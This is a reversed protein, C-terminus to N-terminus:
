RKVDIEDGLAEPRIGAEELAVPAVGSRVVEGHAEALTGRGGPWLGAPAQLRQYVDIL